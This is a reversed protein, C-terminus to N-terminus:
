KAMCKKMAYQVAMIHTKTKNVINNISKAYAANTLKVPKILKRAYKLPKVGKMATQKETICQTDGKPNLPLPTIGPRQMRRMRQLNPQLTRLIRVDVM